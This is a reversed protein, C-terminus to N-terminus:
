LDRWLVVGKVEAWYSRIAKQMETTDSWFTSIQSGHEAAAEGWARFGAESVPFITAKKGSTFAEPIVKSKSVYPFDAYYWKQQSLGQVALKVLQHDVHGGLAFPCVLECEGPLSKVLEERIAEVLGLEEARLEGFLEGDSTYLPTGDTPSYRYIADMLSLHTTIAGLRQNARKDEESRMTVADDAIGWRLHLSRTFDSIPQAPPRGACITCIEVLEGSQTQEWVLGGCSLAVDDFHPSLYVWRM